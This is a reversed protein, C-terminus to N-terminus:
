ETEAEPLAAAPIAQAPTAAKVADAPKPLFVSFASGIGPASEVSLGGRHRTIIHKVIALGLGTGATPGSKQGDVRYFRESLRPLYRRDIGSGHDRVRLVGYRQRPDFPPGALLLRASQPALRDPAHEAV